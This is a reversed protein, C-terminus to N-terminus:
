NPDDEEIVPMIFYFVIGLFLPPAAISLYLLLDQLNTDM